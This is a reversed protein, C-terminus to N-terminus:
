AENTRSELSAQLNQDFQRFIENCRKKVVPFGLTALKGSIKIDANLHLVCEEVNGTKEIMLTLDILAETRTKKDKGKANVSVKENEIYEHVTITTPMHFKFPGVKQDMVAAYDKRFRIEEVETCGPIMEAVKEVDFLMEWLGEPSATVTTETQFIM